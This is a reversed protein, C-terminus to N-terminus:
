GVPRRDHIDVMDGACDETVIVFGVNVKQQKAAPPSGTNIGIGLTAAERGWLDTGAEELFAEGSTM